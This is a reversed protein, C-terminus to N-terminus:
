YETWDVTLSPIVIIIGNLILNFERIDGPLRRSQKWASTQVM